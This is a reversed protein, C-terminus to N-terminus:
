VFQAHEGAIEAATKLIVGLALVCSCFLLYFVDQPNIWAYAPLKALLETSVLGFVLPRVAIEFVVAALGTLACLRMAAAAEISFVRGELYIGTLFWLRAVALAPLAWTSLAIATSSWYGLASVSELNVGYAKQLTELTDGRHGWSWITLGIGFVIWAVAVLRISHCAWRLKANLAILQASPPPASEDIADTM